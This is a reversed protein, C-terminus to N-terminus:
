ANLVSQIRTFSGTLYNSVIDKSLYHRRVQMCAIAVGIAGIIILHDDVFKKLQQICGKLDFVRCFTLM